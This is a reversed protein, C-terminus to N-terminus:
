VSTWLNSTSYPELCKYFYLYDIYLKLFTILFPLRFVAGASNTLNKDFIYPKTFNSSNNHEKPWYNKM